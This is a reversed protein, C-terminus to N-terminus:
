TVFISHGDLTVSSGTSDARRCRFILNFASSADFTAIVSTDTNTVAGRQFTTHMLGETTSRMYLQGTLIFDQLGIFDTYTVVDSTNVRLIYDINGAGAGATGFYSFNLVKTLGMANQPIVDDQLNEYVDDAAAAARATASVTSFNLINVNINDRDWQLVDNVDHLILRYGGELWVDAQGNPDFIVPNTNPSTGLINTYTAKPTLSGPEYSYLKAGPLAGTLGHSIFVPYPALVAM